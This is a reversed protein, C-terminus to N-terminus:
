RWSRQEKRLIISILIPAGIIGTVINIPLVVGSKIVHTLMHCLLMFCAGVLLTMPILVRHNSKGFLFRVVHPVAIGVFAIPGTFATCVGVVIGALLIVFLRVRKISVGVTLAYQEGILLANLQKALLLFLLSAPLLTCAMLLVSEADNGELSGFSWVQFSKVVEAPAYYQLLSVIAGSIFSIMVGVILISVMDKMSRAMLAILLLIFAAGVISSLLMGATQWLSPNSMAGGSVLVGGMMFLAVGLSAGGSVGLVSADALPNRFLTQMALGAVALGGGVMAAALANPLRMHWLIYRLEEPQSSPDFIAGKLVEWPISVSGLAIDLCFAVITLLLLIIFVLTNRM